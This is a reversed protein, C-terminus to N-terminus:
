AIDESPPAVDSSLEPSSTNASNSIPNNEQANIVPESSQSPISIEESSDVFKAAIESGLQKFEERIQSSQEQQLAEAKIFAKIQLESPFQQIVQGTDSSTIELIALDLLNDVRIRSNTFSSKPASPATEVQETAKPTATRTSVPASTIGLVGVM